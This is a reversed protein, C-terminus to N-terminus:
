RGAPPQGATGGTSALKEALAEAPVVEVSNVVDKTLVGRLEVFLQDRVHDITRVDDTPGKVSAVLWFSYKTDSSMSGAVADTEKSFLRCLVLLSGYAKLRNEQLILTTVHNRQDTSNLYSYKRMLHKIQDGLRTEEILIVGNDSGFTFYDCCNCDGLGEKAYRSRAFNWGHPVSRAPSHAAGRCRYHGRLIGGVRERVM